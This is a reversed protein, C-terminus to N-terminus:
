AALGSVPLPVEPVRTWEDDLHVASRGARQLLSAAAGARFGSRCYVWVEGAPVEALRQELEHLPINLAGSVHGAAFEERRRVDLLTPLDALAHLDEWRARRCSAPLPQAPDLTHVRVGEIGIAELDRVATDLDHPDDALLVIDDQWPVLWGAYTAFQDSHELSVTGALHGHAFRVRDRVDIVWQGALVADTVQESTVRTVPRPLTGGAGARNLDGMHAYYSPVPGYGAVLTAVFNERGTTLAPNTVLQHGLTVPGDGCTTTTGAACFSGFGHTPLLLTSAPLTALSRATTWQARALAVTQDASILDTRGVTGHLLSGGSLLAAPGTGDGVLFAQHHETHGPADLVEVRLSGVALVDGGRVGVHATGVAEQAAVLYDAAHRRALLPAGSVYDNHVHTDAVAVIEVQAAAAAQEVLTHDRPPDVVVARGDAHLLHCRNGLPPVPLTVVDM